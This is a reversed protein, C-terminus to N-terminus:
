TSSADFKACDITLEIAASEPPINQAEWFFGMMFMHITDEGATIKITDPYKQQDESAPSAPLGAAGPLDGRCLSSVDPAHAKTKKESVHTHTHSYIEISKTDCM